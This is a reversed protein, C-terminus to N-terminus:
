VVFEVGGEGAISGGGGVASACCGVVSRVEWLVLILWWWGLRLLRSETFEVAVVGLCEM